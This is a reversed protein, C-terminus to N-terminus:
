TVACYSRALSLFMLPREIIEKLLFCQCYNGSTNGIPNVNPPPRSGNLISDLENQTYLLSTCFNYLFGATCPNQITKCLLTLTKLVQNATATMNFIELKKILLRIFMKFDFNTIKEITSMYSFMNRGLQCMKKFYLDNYIKMQEQVMPPAFHRQYNVLVLQCNSKEVLSLAVYKAINEVCEEHTVEKPKITPASSRQQSCNPNINECSRSQNHQPRPQLLPFPIARQQPVGQKPVTTTVPQPPVRCTETARGACDQPGSIRQLQPIEQIATRRSNAEAFAALESVPQPRQTSEKTLREMSCRTAIMQQNSSTLLNRLNISNEIAEKAPVKNTARCCDNKVTAMFPIASNMHAAETVEIAQTVNVQHDLPVAVSYVPEVFESQLAQNINLCVNKKILVSSETKGDTINLNLALDDGDSNTPFFQDVLDEVAFSGTDVEVESKKMYKRGKDESGSRKRKKQNTQQLESKQSKENSPEAKTEVHASAKDTKTTTNFKYIEQDVDDLDDGFLQDILAKCSPLKEHQKEMPRKEKFKHTKNFDSLRVFSKGNHVASNHRTFHTVDCTVCKKKWKTEATSNKKSCDKEAPTVKNVQIDKNSEKRKLTNHKEIREPPAKSETDNKRALKKTYTCMKDVSKRRKKQESSLPERYNKPLEGWLGYLESKSRTIPGFTDLMCPEVSKSRQQKLNLLERAQEASLSHRRKPLRRSSDSLQALHLSKPANTTNSQSTSETPLRHESRPSQISNSLSKEITNSMRRKNIKAVPDIADFPVAITRRRHLIKQCAPAVKPLTEVIVCDADDVEESRKGTCQGKQIVTKQDAAIPKPPQMKLFTNTTQKTNCVNSKEMKPPMEVGSTIGKGSVAKAGVTRKESNKLFTNTTQKTSCINSKETKSAMEVGSSMGKGSTAKAGVSSKESGKVNPVKASTSDFKDGVKKLAFNNTKKINLPNEISATRAHGTESSSGETSRGNKKINASLKPTTSKTTEDTKTMLSKVKTIHSVIEAAITQVESGKSSGSRVVGVKESVKKGLKKILASEKEPYTKVNVAKVSSSKTEQINTTNKNSVKGGDSVKATVVSGVKSAKSSVDKVCETTSKRGGLLVKEPATSKTESPKLATDRTKDAAIHKPDTRTPIDKLEKNKKINEPYHGSQETGLTEVTDEKVSGWNNVKAICSASANTSKSSDSLVEVIVVTVQEAASNENCINKHGTNKAEKTNSSSINEKATLATPKGSGKEIDTPKDVVTKKTIQTETNNTNSALYKGSMTACVPKEKQENTKTMNLSLGEESKNQISKDIIERNSEKDCGSHLVQKASIIDCLTEKNQCSNLYSKGTDINSISIADGDVNKIHLSQELSKNTVNCETEKNNSSTAAKCPKKTLREDPITTKTNRTNDVKSWSRADAKKNIHREPQHFPPTYYNSRKFRDVFHYTRDM